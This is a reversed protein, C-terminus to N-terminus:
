VLPADVTIRLGLTKLFENTKKKIKGIQFGSSSLWMETCGSMEQELYIM